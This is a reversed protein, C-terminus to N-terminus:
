TKLDSPTIRRGIEDAQREHRAIEPSFETARSQALEMARSRLRRVLHGGEARLVERAPEDAREFAAIFADAQETLGRRHM